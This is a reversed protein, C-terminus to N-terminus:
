CTRRRYGCWKSPRRGQHPVVVLHSLATRGVTALRSTMVLSKNERGDNVANRMHRMFRATLVQINRGKELPLASAQDDRELIISQKCLELQMCAVEIGYLTTLEPSVGAPVATSEAGEAEPEVPRPLM